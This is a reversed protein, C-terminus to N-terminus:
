VLTLCEGSFAMDLRSCGLPPAPVRLVWWDEGSDAAARAAAERDTVTDLLRKHLTQQLEPDLGWQEFVEQQLQAPPDMHHRLGSALPVLELKQTQQWGDHGMVVKVGTGQPLRSLPGSALRNFFLLQGETGAALQGPSTCLNRGAKGQKRAWSSWWGQGVFSLAEPLREAWASETHGADPAYTWALRDPGLGQETLAAYLTKLYRPFHADHERGRGSRVGSYEKGGMGLYVRQPWSGRYSIVDQLLLLAPLVAAAASHLAMHSLMHSLAHTDPPGRRSCVRRPPVCGSELGAPVGTRSSGM